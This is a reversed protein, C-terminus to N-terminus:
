KNNKAAKIVAVADMIITEKGNIRKYIWIVKKREGYWAQKLAYATLQLPNGKSKNKTETIYDKM